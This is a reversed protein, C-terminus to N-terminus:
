DTLNIRVPMNDRLQMLGTTLVTDGASIGSLVEIMSATRTGTVIPILFARGNKSVWIKKENMEPVIAETPVQIANQKEDTILTLSAFMGPVLRGDRNIYRARLGITRTTEDIRYDVAYVTAFFEDRYGETEFSIRKGMLNESVYKESIAFELKLTSPDILHAIKVSPTVYTGESVYRFGIVGDFPSRVETEAIRVKLLNMDAQIVNYDTQLQDFSERSVADKSLLVRQRELKEALLKEQIEARRLQAQLDEDYIKVLLDGKKVRSGEQFFVGTVKGSVKSVIDVEENALLSGASRIGSTLYSPKAITGNVPLLGGGQGGGGARGEGQQGAPGQGPQGGQGQAPAAVADGSKKLDRNGWLGIRPGVFWILLVLPVSAWLAIKTGKKM